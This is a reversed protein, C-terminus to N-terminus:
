FFVFLFFFVCVMHYLCMLIMDFSFTGLSSQVHCWSKTWHLLKSSHECLLEWIYLADLKNNNKETTAGFLSFKWSLKHISFHETILHRLLRLELTHTDKKILKCQLEYQARGEEWKLEGTEVYCWDFFTANIIQVVVRLLSCLTLGNDRRQSTTFYM